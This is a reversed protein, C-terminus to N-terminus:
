LKNQGELRTVREVKGEETSHYFLGATASVLDEHEHETTAGIVFGTKNNQDADISSFYGGTTATEIHSWSQFYGTEESHASGMPVTSELTFGLTEWKALSMSSSVSRTAESLQDSHDSSFILPLYGGLLLPAVALLVASAATSVLFYKKVSGIRVLNYRTSRAGNVFLGM